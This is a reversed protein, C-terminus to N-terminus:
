LKLQLVGSVTSSLGLCGDLLDLMKDGGPILVQPARRRHRGTQGLRRLAALVNEGPELLGILKRKCEQVAEQSLQPQQEEDQHEQQAAAAADKAKVFDVIEDALLQRSAYPPPAVAPGPPSCLPAAARFISCLSTLRQTCAQLSTWGPM